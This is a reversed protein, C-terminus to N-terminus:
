CRFANRLDREVRAPRKTTPLIRGDLPAKRGNSHINYDDSLKCHSPRYEHVTHTLDIAHDREPHSIM